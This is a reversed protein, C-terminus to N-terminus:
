GRFDVCGDSSRDRYCAMLPTNRGRFIVINKHTVLVGYRWYGDQHCIAGNAIGSCTYGTGGEKWYSSATAVGVSGLLLGSVLGAILKRM